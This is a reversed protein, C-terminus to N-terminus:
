IGNHKRRQSRRVDGTQARSYPELCELELYAHMVAEIGVWEAHQLFYAHALGVGQLFAAALHGLRGKVPKKPFRQLRHKTPLTLYKTPVTPGLTPM